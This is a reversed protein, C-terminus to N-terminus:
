HPKPSSYYCHISYWRVHSSGCIMIDLNTIYTMTILLSLSQMWNLKEMYLWVNGKGKVGIYSYNTM